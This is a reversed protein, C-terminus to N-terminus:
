TEEPRAMAIAELPLGSRAVVLVVAHRDPSLSRVDWGSEFGGDALVSDVLRRAEPPAFLVRQPAPAAAAYKTAVELPPSLKLFLRRLFRRTTEDAARHLASEGEEFPSVDQLSSLERRCFDLLPPIAGFPAEVWPDEALSEKMWREAAARPEPPRVDDYVADIDDPRVITGHLASSILLGGASLVRHGDAEEFRLARDAEALVARIAELTALMEEIRGLLRSLIRQIWLLRAHHLRRAYHNVLDERVHRELAQALDDRAQVVWNHHRKRHKWLRYNTSPFSVAAGLLFPIPPIISIGALGEPVGPYPGFFSQHPLVFMRMATVYLGGIAIASVISTATGSIRMRLPRPRGRVAEELASLKGALPSQPRTSLEPAEVARVVEDWHGKARTRADRLALLARAHGTPGSAVLQAIRNDLEALVKELCSKGRQELAASLKDMQFREVEDEFTALQAETRARFISGFKREVITEPDDDWEVPPVEIKPPSLFEVLPITEALDAELRARDPVLPAALSAIDIAAPDVPLRMLELIERGFRSAALRGLATHDFSLSACAFTSFTPNDGTDEVLMRAGRDDDRMAPLVLASLFAAFSRILEARSLIYKGSQDEVLYIRGGLRTAPLRNRAVDYLGILGRAMAARDGARPCVLVPCVVLAGDGSRLIPSFLRRLSAALAASLQAVVGAVGPEALDAVVFVDCRPGRPDTPASSELFHTVDLLAGLERECALVVDRFPEKNAPEASTKGSLDVLADVHVFRAGVAARAVDKGFAGVSVLLAPSPPRNSRAAPGPVSLSTGGDDM